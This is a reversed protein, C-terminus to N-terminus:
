IRLVFTANHEYTINPPVYRILPKPLVPGIGVSCRRAGDNVGDDVATRATKPTSRDKSCATVKPDTSQDKGRPQHSQQTYHACWRLIAELVAAQRTIRDELM